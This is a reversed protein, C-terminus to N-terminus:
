RVKDRFINQLHNFDVATDPDFSALAVNFQKPLPNGGNLTQIETDNMNYLVKIVPLLRTRDISKEPFSFYKLLVSKMYELNHPRDEMDDEEIGTSIDQKNLCISNYKAKYFQLKNYLFQNIDNATAISKNIQNKTDEDIFLPTKDSKKTTFKNDPSQILSRIGNITQQHNTLATMYDDMEKNLENNEEKYTEIDKELEENQKETTEIDKISSLYQNKVKIHDSTLQKMESKLRRNEELLQEYEAFNGRNNDETAPITVSPTTPTSTGNRDIQNAESLSVIESNVDPSMSFETTLTGNPTAPMLAITATHQSLQHQLSLIVEKQQRKNVTIDALKNKLTTVNKELTSIYLCKEKLMECLKFYDVHLNRYVSDDLQVTENQKFFEVNTLVNELSKIREEQQAIKSKSSNLESQLQLIATQQFTVYSNGYSEETSEIDEYLKDVDPLNLEKSKNQKTLNDLEKMCRTIDLQNTKLTLKLKQFTESWNRNHEAILGQLEEERKRQQGKFRVQLEELSTGETYPVTLEDCFFERISKQDASLLSNQNELSAVSKQLQFIQKEYKRQVNKMGQIYEDKTYSSKLEMKTSMWIYNNMGIAIEFPITSGLIKLLESTGKTLQHITESDTKFCYGQKLEGFLTEGSAWDKRLGSAAICTLEPQMGPLARQVRCYILSGVEIFPKNRKTAGEFATEALRGSYSANIDLIYDEAFRNIVTGIICDGVKPIYYKM